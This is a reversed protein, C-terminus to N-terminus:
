VLCLATQVRQLPLVAPAFHWYKLCLISWVLASPSMRSCVPLFATTTSLCSQLALAATLCAICHLAPCFLVGQAKSSSLGVLTTAAAAVEKCAVCSYGIATFRLGITSRAFAARLLFVPALLSFHFCYFVAGRTTPPLLSMCCCISSLRGLDVQFGVIIHLVQSLVPVSTHCAIHFPGCLALATDSPNLYGVEFNKTIMQLTVQFVAEFIKPVESVM